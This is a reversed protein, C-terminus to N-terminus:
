NGAHDELGLVRAYTRLARAFEYKSEAVQRARMGLEGLKVRSERALRVAAALAEADGPPIVWGIREEIVVQALESGPDAVALIPRGSAM